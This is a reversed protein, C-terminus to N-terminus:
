TDKPRSQRKGRKEERRLYLSEAIYFVVGAAGAAFGLRLMGTGMEADTLNAALFYVALGVLLPLVVGWLWYFRRARAL